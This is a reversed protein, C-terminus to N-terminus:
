PGWKSSSKFGGISLQDTRPVRRGECVHEHKYGSSQVATYKNEKSDELLHYTQPSM